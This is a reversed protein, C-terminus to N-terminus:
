LGNLIAFCPGIVIIWMAVSVILMGVGVRRARPLAAVIVSVVTLLVFPWLAGYGAGLSGLFLLVGVIVSVCGIAVGVGTGPGSRGPDSPEPTSNM